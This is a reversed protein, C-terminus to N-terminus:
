ETTYKRAPFFPRFKKIRGFRSQSIARPAGTNRWADFLSPARRYSKWRPALKFVGDLSQEARVLFLRVSYVSIYIYIQIYIPDEARITKPVISIRKEAYVCM